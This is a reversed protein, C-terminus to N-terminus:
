PLNIEIKIDRANETGHLASVMGSVTKILSDKVFANLGIRTGNVHLSVDRERPRGLYNKEIFDAIGCADEFAFQPADIDFHKDTVLAVLGKDTTLLKDSVATRFVEIKPKDATKFGETIIIDVDDAAMSILRDLSPEAAPKKIMAVKDASSLIVVDSGAQALRWSDKGPQDIEFGHSDHKIVAVRRGRSKLESVVKELVTTKGVNSRGVFSIVPVM